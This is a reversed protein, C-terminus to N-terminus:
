SIEANTCVHHTDFVVCVLVSDIGMIDIINSLTEIMLWMKIVRFNRTNRHVVNEIRLLIVLSVNVFSIDVFTLLTKKITKIKPILNIFSM